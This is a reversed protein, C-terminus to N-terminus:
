NGSNNLYASRTSHSLIDFEPGSPGYIHLVANSFGLGSFLLCHEKRNKTVSPIPTTLIQMNITEKNQNTPKNTKKFIYLILKLKLRLAWYLLLISFNTQTSTRTEKKRQQTHVKTLQKFHKQFCCSQKLEQRLYILSSLIFLDNAFYGMDATQTLKNVAVKIMAAGIFFTFGCPLIEM